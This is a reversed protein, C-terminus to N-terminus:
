LSPYLEYDKEKFPCKKNLEPYLILYIFLYMGTYGALRCRFYPEYLFCKCTRIPTQRYSLAMQKNSYM